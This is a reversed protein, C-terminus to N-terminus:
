TRGESASMAGSREVGSGLEPAGLAGAGCVALKKELFNGLSPLLIAAGAGATSPRKEVPFLNGCFVAVLETLTRPPAIRSFICNKSSVPQKWFFAINQVPFTRLPQLIKGGDLASM